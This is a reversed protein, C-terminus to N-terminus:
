QKYRTERITQQMERDWDIWREYLHDDKRKREKTTMGGFAGKVKGLGEVLGSEFEMNKSRSESGKKEDNKNAASSTGANMLFGVFSLILFTNKM